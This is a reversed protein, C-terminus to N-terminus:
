VQVWDNNVRLRHGVINPRILTQEVFCGKKAAEILEIKEQTSASGEMVIDIEFSVPETKYPERGKQFGQWHLRTALRIEGVDVKLRKSFARLQTMLCAALGGSFLMLPTPASGDGGHFGMEDTALECEFPDPELMRVKMDTRMKGANVADCEFIVDFRKTEESM